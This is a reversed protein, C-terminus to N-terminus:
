TQSRSTPCSPAAARPSPALLHPELYRSWCPGLSLMDSWKIYSRPRSTSRDYPPPPSHGLRFVVHLVHAVNVCVFANRTARGLVYHKGRCHPHELISVLCQVAARVVRQGGVVCVFVCAVPAVDSTFPVWALARQVQLRLRRNKAVVRQVSLLPLNPLTGLRLVRCRAAVVAVAVAAAAAALCRLAAPVHSCLPVPAEHHPRPNAQHTAPCRPHPAARAFPAAPRPPSSTRSMLVAPWSCLSPKM